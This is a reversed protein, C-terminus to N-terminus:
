LLDRLSKKFVTAVVETKDADKGPFPIPTMVAAKTDSWKQIKGLTTGGIFNVDGM